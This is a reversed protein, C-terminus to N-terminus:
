SWTVDTDKDPFLTEIDNAVKILHAKMDGRQPIGGNIM